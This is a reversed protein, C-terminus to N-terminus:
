SEYDYPHSKLFSFLLFNLIVVLAKLTMSNYHFHPGQTSRQDVAVTVTFFVKKWIIMKWKSKPKGSHGRVWISNESKPILKQTQVFFMDIFHENAFM